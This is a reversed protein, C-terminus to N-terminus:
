LSEYSNRAIREAHPEDENEVASEFAKEGPLSKAQKAKERRKAQAKRWSAKRMEEQVMSRYKEGNIILWGDEVMRVRRGEYEQKEKRKKDPACLMKLAEMVEDETKLSRRAIQYPTMRVIHDADKLAMMTIFIKIVWDPLEWLSSDVVGSWLPAWTHM